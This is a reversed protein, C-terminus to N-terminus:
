NEKLTYKTQLDSKNIYKVHFGCPKLRYSKTQPKHFIITIKHM